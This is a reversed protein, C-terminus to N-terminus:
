LWLMASTVSHTCTLHSSGAQFTLPLPFLQTLSAGWNVESMYHSQTAAVLIKIAQSCHTRALQPFVSCIGAKEEDTASYMTVSWCCPLPCRILGCISIPLLCKPLVHQDPELISVYMVASEVEHSM